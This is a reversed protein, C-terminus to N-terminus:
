GTGRRHFRGLILGILVAVYLQGTLTIVLGGTTSLLPGPRLITTGLTTLSSFSALVMTPFDRLPDSTHASGDPLLALDFGSPQWLLLTHLLFGGAYGILLYGAAAGMVVSLTVYPERMLVRTKRLLFTVIFVVWILLHPISLHRALAPYTALALIWVLEMAIAATGLGYFLRRRARLPSFRTLFLMMVLALGIAALPNLLPWWGALPQLLLVLCTSTLLLVYGRHRRRIVAIDARRCPLSM